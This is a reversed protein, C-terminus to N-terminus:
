TKEKKRKRPEVPEVFPAAPVVGPGAQAPEVPEPKVKGGIRGVNKQTVQVGMPTAGLVGAAVYDMSLDLEEIGKSIKELTNNITVLLEDTSSLAIDMSKEMDTVGTPSLRPDLESIISQIEELIIKKLYKKTYM